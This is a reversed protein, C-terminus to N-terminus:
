ARRLARALLWFPGILLHTLNELFAPSKKEYHYHGIFQVAWGALFCGIAWGTPLLRALALLVIMVATMAAALGLDLRVYYILAALAVAEALTVPATAAPAIRALMGFLGLIILPIGIYHCIENGPSRHHAAYEDFWATLEARM